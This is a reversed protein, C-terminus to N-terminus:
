GEKMEGACGKECHFDGDRGPFGRKMSKESGGHNGWQVGMGEDFNKKGGGKEKSRGERKSVERYM